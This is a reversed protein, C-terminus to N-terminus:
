QHDRCILVDCPTHDLVGRATSGILLRNIAGRNNSGMVILDTKNEQATAVIEDRPDGMRVDITVDSLGANEVAAAIKTSTQQKIDDTLVAFSPQLGIAAEPSPFVQTLPVVVSVLDIREAGECYRAANALVLDLLDSTDVAILIRSYSGNKGDPHVALLDCDTSNLVGHTTSGLLRKFGRRNHVGMVALSAGKKDIVSSIEYIPNGEIVTLNAGHEDTLEPMRELYARNERLLERQWDLATETLPSFNLDAYITIAPRVVNIPYLARQQSAAIRAAAAFVHKGEENPELAVVLPDNSM